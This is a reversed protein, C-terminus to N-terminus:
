SGLHHRAWVQIALARIRVAILQTGTPGVLLLTVVSVFFRVPHTVAFGILPRFEPGHVPQKSLSCELCLRPTM